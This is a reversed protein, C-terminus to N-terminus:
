TSERLLTLVALVRRHLEPTETLGLKAFIEKMHSEVTRESLGLREAIGRNSLGEAVLSLVERERVSLEDLPDRRRKRQMLRTVITPDLVIEGAVLRDLADVLNAPHFVRQKLLYGVRDVRGELLQAAYRPEVHHSLLLVAVEPFADRIEAAAVLGETTHTPPMRIDLVAVDPEHQRVLDLIGTVDAAEAVVSVGADTLLGVLGSRTIMVDEGVIVRM